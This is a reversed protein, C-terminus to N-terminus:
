PSAPRAFSLLTYDALPALRPSADLAREGLRFLPHTVARPLDRVSLVLRLPAFGMRGTAVHRLGAREALRVWAPVGLGLVRRLLPNTHIPELLFVRGGDCVLSAVHALARALEDETRCAVSLCGLVLADDFAGVHEPSFGSLVDGVAFRVRDSLGAADTEVRAAEVTAPSFDLGMVERAGEAAFFRAMRGTGTGVDVVRRGALSGLHRMLLARQREDWAENFVNSPWLSRALGSRESARADWYSAEGYIASRARRERLLQSLSTDGLKM